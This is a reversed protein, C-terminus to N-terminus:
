QKRWRRSLGGLLVLASSFFWAAAPVPVMAGGVDGSRVAWAFWTDFKATPGQDGDSFSHAWVHGALPTYETSSHYWQQVNTFDGPSSISIGYQEFLYGYENDRCAVESSSSCNVVTGDGDVDMSPLRWNEYTVDRVPDYISLSDAWSMQAFWTTQGNINANQTWTIDLVDDYIFGGGRDILAANAGPALLFVLFLLTLGKYKM